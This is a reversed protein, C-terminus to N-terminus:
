AMVEFTLIRVRSQGQWLGPPGGERLSPKPFRGGRSQADHQDSLGAPEDRVPKDHGEMGNAADLREVWHTLWSRM